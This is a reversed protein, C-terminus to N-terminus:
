KKMVSYAAIAKRNVVFLMTLVGVGMSAVVLLALAWPYQGINAQEGASTVAQAFSFEHTDDSTHVHLALQYTGAHQFTYSGSATSGSLTLTVTDVLKGSNTIDLIVQKITEDGFGQLDFYLTAEKGVTPNDDPMIHLLAASSDTGNTSLVHAYTHRVPFLALVLVVIGVLIIKKM